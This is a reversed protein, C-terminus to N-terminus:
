TESLKEFITILSGGPPLIYDHRTGAKFITVSFPPLESANHTATGVLQINTEKTKPHWHWGFSGKEGPPAVCITYFMMKGDQDPLRYSMCNFGTPYGIPQEDTSIQYTSIQEWTIAGGKAFNREMAEVQEYIREYKAKVRDLEPEHNVIKKLHQILQIM